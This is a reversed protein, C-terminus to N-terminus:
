IRASYLLWFIALGVAVCSLLVLTLFAAPRALILARRQPEADSDRAEERTM